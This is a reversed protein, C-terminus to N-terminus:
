VDIDKLLEYARQVTRKSTEKRIAVNFQSLKPNEIHYACIEMHFLLQTPLGIKLLIRLEGSEKKQPPLQLSDYIKNIIILLFAVWM